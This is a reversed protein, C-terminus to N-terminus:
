EGVAYKIEVKSLLKAVDKYAEWQGVRLNYVDRNTDDIHLRCAKDALSLWKDVQEIAEQLTITEDM